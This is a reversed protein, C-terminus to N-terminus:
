MKEPVLPDATNNTEFGAPSCWSVGNIKKLLLILMYYEGLAVSLLTVMRM